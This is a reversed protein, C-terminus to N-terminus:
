GTGCTGEPEREGCTSGFRQEASGPPALDALEGCADLDGDACAAHLLQVRPAIAEPMPEAPRERGGEGPVSSPAATAPPADDDASACGSAGLVVVVVVARAIWGQRQTTPRLRM